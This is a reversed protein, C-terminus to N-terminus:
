ETRGKRKLAPNPLPYREAFKEGKAKPIWTLGELLEAASVDLVEALRALTKLTTNVEAAEVKQWHRWHIGARHAAEELTLGAAERATRANQALNQRLQKENRSPRAM